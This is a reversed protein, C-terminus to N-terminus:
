ERQEDNKRRVSAKAIHEAGFVHDFVALCKPCMRGDHEGCTECPVEIEAWDDARSMAGCAPCTWDALPPVDYWGKHNPRGRNTM